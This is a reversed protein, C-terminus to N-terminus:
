SSSMDSISGTHRQYLSSRPISKWSGRPNPRKWTAPMNQRKKSRVIIDQSRRATQERENDNQAAPQNRSPLQITAPSAASKQM